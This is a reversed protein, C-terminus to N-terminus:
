LIPLRSARLRVNVFELQWFRQRQNYVPKGLIDEVTQMEPVVCDRVSSDASRVPTFTSTPHINNQKKESLWKHVQTYTRFECNMDKHQRAPQLDRSSMDLLEGYNTRKHGTGPVYSISAMRKRLRYTFM